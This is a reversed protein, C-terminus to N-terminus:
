KEGKMRISLGLKEMMEAAVEHDSSSEEDLQAIIYAEVANTAYGEFDYPHVSKWRKWGMKKMFKKMERYQDRVDQFNEYIFKIEKNVYWRRLHHPTPTIRLKKRARTWAQRCFTKSLYQRGRDNLFLPESKSDIKKETLYIAYWQPTYSADGKKQAWELFDSYRKDQLPRELTFYDNCLKETEASLSILKRPTRGQGKNHVKIQNGFGCLEWGHFSVEVSECGRCGGNIIIGLIAHESLRWQAAKAAEQMLDPLTSGDTVFMPIVTEDTMRYYCVPSQRFEEIATTKLDEVHSSLDKAVTQHATLPNKGKRYGNAFLREFGTRMSSLFTKITYPNSKEGTYIKVHSSATRSFDAGYRTHLIYEVIERVDAASANAGKNRKEAEILFLSMAYVVGRANSDTSPRAIDNYIQTLVESFRGKVDYVIINGDRKDFRLSYDALNARKNQSNHGEKM